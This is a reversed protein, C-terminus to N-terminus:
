LSAYMDNFENDFKAYYREASDSEKGNRFNRLGINYAKIASTKDGGLRVYYDRLIHAGHAIQEEVDDIDEPDLGWAGPRVQMVGRAPDNKLGSVADKNFSSEIGVITLIDAATPFGPKEYKHALKVMEKAMKPETKYKNTILDVMAKDRNINDQIRKDHMQHSVEKAGPQREAHQMVLPPREPNPAKNGVPNPNMLASGALVGSALAHKLNLEDLREQNTQPNAIEHLKM